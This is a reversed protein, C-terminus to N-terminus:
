GFLSLFLRAYPSLTVDGNPLSFAAALGDSNALLILTKHRAPLHIVLASSADPAYGFHWVVPQGNHVQVFWGLGFKPRVAAAGQPATWATALTDERLLTLTDLAITFRALDRVTSILGSAADLTAAPYLSLSARGRRDVRYPKATERLVTRYAEIEEPQFDSPEITIVDQGPVSRTMALRDLLRRALAEKLSDQTCREIVGTLAAFRAPEYRFSDAGAPSHRLLDRITVITPAGGPVTAPVTVLQEPRARGQEICELVLTASLTSTLDAVYFPTEPTARISAELDQYGFGAEWVIRDDQVIAAALGPIGAQKRLAELYREFRAMLFDSQATLGPPVVLPLVLVLATLARRM